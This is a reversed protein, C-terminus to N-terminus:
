RVPMHCIDVRTKPGVRAWWWRWGGGAEVIECQLCLLENSCIGGAVVDCSYEVTGEKPDIQTNQIENCSVAAFYVCRLLWLLL